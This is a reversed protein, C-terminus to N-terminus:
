PGLTGIIDHRGYWSAWGLPTDGNVDRADITAGADLLLQIVEGSAFAAAGHLADRRREAVPGVACIRTV